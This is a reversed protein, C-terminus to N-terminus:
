RNKHQARLSKQQVAKEKAEGKESCDMTKDHEGSKESLATSILNRTNIKRLDTEIFNTMTPVDATADTM